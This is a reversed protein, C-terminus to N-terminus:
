ISDLIATRRDQYEQQSIAGKDLLEQLTDLRASATPAAAPEARRVKAVSNAIYATTLANNDILAVATAADPDLGAERASRRVWIVTFVTAILGFMLVAVMLGIFTGPIGSGTDADPYSVTWHTGDASDCVPLDGNADQVFCSAPPDSPAALAPSGIGALVLLLLVLGGLLAAGRGRM